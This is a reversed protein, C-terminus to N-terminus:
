KKLRFGVHISDPSINSLILMKNIFNEYVPKTLTFKM